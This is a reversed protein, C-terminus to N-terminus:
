LLRGEHDSDGLRKRREKLWSSKRAYRLMSLIEYDRFEPGRYHESLVTRATKCYYDSEFTFSGLNDLTVQKDPVLEEFLPILVEWLQEQTGYFGTRQSIKAFRTNGKQGTKKECRLNDALKKRNRWIANLAWSVMRMDVATLKAAEKVRFALHKILQPHDHIAEPTLGQPSMWTREPDEQCWALPLEAESRGQYGALWERRVIALFENATAKDDEPNSSAFELSRLRQAAKTKSMAM